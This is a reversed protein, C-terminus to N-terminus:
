KLFKPYACFFCKGIKQSKKILKSGYPVSHIGCLLYRKDDFSSFARKKIKTLRNVHNKSQISFQEVHYQNSSHLVCQLFKEFPILDRASKKVGKCRRLIAKEKKSEARYAYIKSRVGVVETITQSPTENKLYGTKNKVTDNFLPHDHPYNSFDMISHLKEMAADPSSSPVALIWSDTDSLIVSVNNNFMPRVAHYFLSQMIYKSLELIAFGVAWSQNLRVAKKSLFAITFNPDIIMQSKIRPDTNFKKASNENRVFRCDMRKTGSEIMKGYLSNCLLKMMNSKTKTKAEARKKTCMDIYPKLFREQEFKIGRHIQILEMGLDLYLKLNMAHCVYNTRREFSSTLKKASYKNKGEIKQYANKAYDSLMTERIEQQHAALPFSNHELHLHRPYDLTVEFIYGENEDKTIQNLLYSVNSMKKLEEATLWQYQGKPMPFRMAAGYLNNADVYVLSTDIQRKKREKEVNFHRTNIYSLGGRINSKVFNIMEIDTLLDMKVNTVKLMIDKAMMPLSLYHCLDIKFEEFINDRLDLVAEALQYTDSLVYLKTFDKLNRCGFHKWISKAHDYDENSIHSSNLRSYFKDKSPLQKEKLRDYSTIYEYPYVGKRLIMGVSAMGRQYKTMWKKIFPFKHHSVKLTDVLKELSDGLFAFSDLLTLNNIKIMKFKETNLPIASIRIDGEYKALAQILIHSDYGSFNHAFGVIKNCEVRHLNCDKHAAGIYKGTLHDHDRVGKGNIAFHCIHCHKANQYNKEDDDTMKIPVETQLIKSYKKQISVLARVCHTAADTGVHSIQERIDGYRDIVIISYAFAEHDSINVSKHSCTEESCCKKKSPLQMTEFDFFLTFAIKEEKRKPMYEVVSGEEPVILSQGSEQHCWAVHSELTSLRHFTNFCNYCIHQDRTHWTNTASKTRVALLKSINEILAYHLTPEEKNATFFLFMNVMNKANINPSAYCPYIEEDETKYIVNIAIDLHKNAAEVQSIKDVSVPLPAVCNINEEIFNAIDSKNKVFFQALAIYFCNKGNKSDSENVSSTIRENKYFVTHPQDQECYSGALSLCKGMEVDFAICDVLIWGSGNQLFDEFSKIIHSFMSTITAKNMQMENVTTVRSRFNMTIVEKGEAGVDEQTTSQAFRCTLVFSTKIMHHVSLLYKLLLFAKKRAYKIADTIIRVDAPFNLRYLQCARNHASAVLHFKKHIKHTANRHLILKEKTDFFDDCMGCLFVDRNTEEGGFHAFKSHRVLNDKRSFTARCSNCKFLKKKNGCIKKHRTLNDERFFQRNCTGCSFLAM